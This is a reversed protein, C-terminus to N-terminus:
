LVDCERDRSVGFGVIEVRTQERHNSAEEAYMEVVQHNTSIVSDQFFIEQRM